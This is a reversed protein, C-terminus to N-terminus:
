ASAKLARNASARTMWIVATGGCVPCCESTPGNSDWVNGDPCGPCPVRVMDDDLGNTYEIM